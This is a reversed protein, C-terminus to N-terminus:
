EDFPFDLGQGTFIKSISGLINPLMGLLPLFGGSNNTKKMEENLIILDNETVRGKEGCFQITFPKGKELKKLLRSLFSNIKKKNSSPTKQM